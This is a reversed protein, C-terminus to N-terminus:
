RQKEKVNKKVFYYVKINGLKELHELTICGEANLNIEAGLRACNLIHGDLEFSKCHNWCWEITRKVKSKELTRM